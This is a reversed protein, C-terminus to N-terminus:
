AKLQRQILGEALLLTGSLNHTHPALAVAPGEERGGCVNDRQRRWVTLIQVKACSFFLLSLVKQVLLDLLSSYRADRFQESSESKNASSHGQLVLGCIRM